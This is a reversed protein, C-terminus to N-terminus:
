DRCRGRKAGMSRSSADPSRDRFWPSRNAMPSVVGWIGQEEETIPKPAGGNVDIVYLRPFHDPENAQIVMRKGDPHWSGGGMTLGKLTLTRPEGAGTPVFRIMDTTLTPGTAAWRGDPSLAMAWGDTLKVAPSGDTRRMYVSYNLGAGAGQEDFLVVRGDDSIATPRSYDLWSLDREATEGPALGLIGRRWSERVLLIKGDPAIDHLSLDAPVSSLLRRRGSLDVANLSQLNGKEGATFWIESGDPSWALGVASAFEDTLV